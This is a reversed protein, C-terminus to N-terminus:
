PFNLIIPVAWVGLKFYFTFLLFYFTGNQSPITNIPLESYDARGM